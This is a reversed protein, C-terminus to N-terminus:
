RAALVIRRAAEMALSFAAGRGWCEAATRPLLDARLRDVLIPLQPIARGVSDGYELILVALVMLTERTKKTGHTARIAIAMPGAYAELLVALDDPSPKLAGQVVAMARALSAETPSHVRGTARAALDRASQPVGRDIVHATDPPNGRSVRMYVNVNAKIVAWLRKQGTLINEDVDLMLGQDHLRWRGARMIAAYEDVKKWNIPRNRTNRQLLTKAVDPTILETTTVILPVQEEAGIRLADTTALARRLAKGKM